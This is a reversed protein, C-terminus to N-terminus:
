AKHRRTSSGGGVTGAISRELISICLVPFPAPTQECLATVLCTDTEVSNGQAYASTFPQERDSIEGNSLEELQMPPKAVDMVYPSGTLRLWSGITSNASFANVIKVSAAVGPRNKTSIIGASFCTGSHIGPAPNLVKARSHLAIKNRTRSSGYRAAMTAITHVIM